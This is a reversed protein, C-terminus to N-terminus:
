IFEGDLRKPKLKMTETIWVTQRYTDITLLNGRDVSVSPIIKRMEIIWVTRRYIDFEIFEASLSVLDWRTMEKQQQQQNEM